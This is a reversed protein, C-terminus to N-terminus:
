GFAVWVPPFWEKESMLSNYYGRAIEMDNIKFAALTEPIVNSVVNSSNDRYMTYGSGAVAGVIVLLLM